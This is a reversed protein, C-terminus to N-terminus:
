TERPSVIGRITFNGSDDHTEPQNFEVRHGPSPGTWGFGMMVTAFFRTCEPLRCDAIPLRCDAIPLRCDAIPLRCDAIPLRRDAIPLRCDAIPLRCDAIPLRCDDIIFRKGLDGYADIRRDRLFPWHTRALDILGLDLEVVITEEGQGARALVTGYPDAVFSNGWFEIGAGADGEHGVRNVASSSYATPM